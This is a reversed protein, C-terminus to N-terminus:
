AVVKRKLMDELFNRIRSTTDEWTPHCQFREHAAQSMRALLDHDEIVQALYDRLLSSNGPPILFGNVGPTIIETAGGATSAIAPLGYGMGELYAIGFGEYSSPIVMLHSSEMISKLDNEDLPGYFQIGDIIGNDKMQRKIRNVYVRDMQLSGVVSLRWHYQPIQALAELLLLLGKRPIVNGLFLLRLPGEQKSRASIQSVSFEPHLRDGAPFAVVCDKKDGILEEVVERTSNSNFIFGDVSELYRREILRYYHNQWTPRFESCRLHHVISVINFDVQRKLRRNLRFLSPHNLEDQLLLDVPLDRLRLYLSRSFNDMLHQAYNRWPISIVEVQDGKSRLYSILQRDYLYGGSLTELSGYILLGIRM